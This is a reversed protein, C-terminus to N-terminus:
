RMEDRLSASFEVTPAPPEEDAGALQGSWLKMVENAIFQTLEIRMHASEQEWAAGKVRLQLLEGVVTGNYHYGIDSGPEYSFLVMPTTQLPRGLRESYIDILAPISLRAISKLWAPMGPDMIMAVNHLREVELTGTYAYTGQTSPDQWRMPGNSKRGRIIVHQNDKPIIELHSVVTEREYDIAEPDFPSVYFHRTFLAISTDTFVNFLERNGIDSRTDVPVSVRLSHAPSAKASAVVVQYDGDRGFYYGPTEIAWSEERMFGAPDAFRLGKIPEQFRYELEWRGDQGARLSINPDAISETAMALASMFLVALVVLRPIRM